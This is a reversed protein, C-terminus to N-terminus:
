TIRELELQGTTVDVESRLYLEMPLPQAWMDARIDYTVLSTRMDKEVRLAVDISGPHIRPEFTKIANSISKRIKEAREATSHEGAVERIGFNLVSHAVNPYKEEDFLTNSDSTNLLWALDRQIIERLQRIDIVRDERREKLETPDDDTLRDLLSPQLREAVMKDSM